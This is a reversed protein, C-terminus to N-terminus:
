SIVQLADGSIAQLDQSQQLVSLARSNDDSRAMYVLDLILLAIEELYLVCLIVKASGEPHM